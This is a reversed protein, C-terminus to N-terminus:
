SLKTCCFRHVTGEVITNFFQKRRYLVVARTPSCSLRVIYTSPSYLHRGRGGAAVRHRRTPRHEYRLRSTFQAALVSFSGVVLFLLELDSTCTQLDCFYQGRYRASACVRMSMNQLENINLRLYDSSGYNITPVVIADWCAVQASIRRILDIWTRLVTKIAM